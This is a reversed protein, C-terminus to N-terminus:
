EDDVDIHLYEAIFIRLMKNINEVTKVDVAEKDDSVKHWVDPFPVPILHLVPVGRRLFPIHDDEIGATISNSQFYRTPNRNITGSTTSQYSEFHNQKDLREEANVLRSYWYETERFYNYITPDPAGLLDLLVLLDIRHLSKENEWKEALHRAGPLAFWIIVSLFINEIFISSVM